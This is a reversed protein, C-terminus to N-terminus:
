ETVQWRKAGKWIGIVILVIPWYTSVFDRKIDGLLFLVGLGILVIAGIPPGTQPGTLKGPSAEMGFLNNIGLPDPVQEGTVRAKATKYADWIMYLFYFPIAIGIVDVQNTMAILAIFGAVHLIGKQYQGNYFAGVGPIIGLFAAATPNPLGKPAVGAALVPDIAPMSDALRAAICEECYIVGRVDRKCQDCLPKGCTRCYATAM